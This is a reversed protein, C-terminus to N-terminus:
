TGWRWCGVQQIHSSDGASQMASVVAGDGGVDVVGVQNVSNHHALNGLALTGHDQVSRGGLFARMAATVTLAAGAAGM